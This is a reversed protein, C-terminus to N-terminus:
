RRPRGARLEEVRLEVLRTVLDAPLTRDPRFNITGKWLRYGAMEAALADLPARGVYFSCQGKAAGFGVFYRGDLKYAPRGYSIAEIADPAALRIQSRLQELIKRQEDPVGALYEDISGASM